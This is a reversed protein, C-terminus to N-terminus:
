RSTRDILTKRSAKAAESASVGFGTFAERVMEITKIAEQRSWRVFDEYRVLVAVPHDHRTLVVPEGTKEVQRILRALQQKGEAMSITSQMM